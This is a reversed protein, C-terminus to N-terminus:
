TASPYSLRTVSDGPGGSSSETQTISSVRRSSDYGFHTSVSGPASITTLLGTSDYSFSTNRGLADTFSTATDYVRAFSVLRLPYQGSGQSLTTGQYSDTSVTATQNGSGGAPTTVTM